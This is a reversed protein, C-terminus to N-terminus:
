AGGRVQNRIAKTLATRDTSAAALIQCFTRDTTRLLAVEFRFADELLRDRLTRQGHRLTIRELRISIALTTRWAAHARLTDRATSTARQPVETM